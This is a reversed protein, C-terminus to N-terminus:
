CPLSQRATQPLRGCIEKALAATINDWLHEECILRHSNNGAQLRQAPDLMQEMAGAIQAPESEVVLGCGRRTIQRHLGVNNSVIVPLGMYMAELLAMSLGEYRSPLLFVDAERLLDLKRKGSVLGPLTVRQQLGTQEILATIQAADQPEMPGALILRTEPHRESLKAFAQIITDVAKQRVDLRGLFLYSVPGESRRESGAPALMSAPDIGNPVVIGKASFLSDELEEEANFALFMASSMNRQELIRVYMRKLWYSSTRLAVQRLSCHPFVVYPKNRARCLVAGIWNAFQYHAHILVVDAAGIEKWLRAALKPSFGWKRALPVPEYFVRVGDVDVPSDVEVALDTKFDNLNTTCVTVQHGLNILSTSLSHAVRLPGGFGFAPVYHPIIQLIRMPVAGSMRLPKIPAPAAAAKM